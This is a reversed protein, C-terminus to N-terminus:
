PSVRRGDRGHDLLEVERVDPDSPRPVVDDCGADVRLHLAGELQDVIAAEFRVTRHDIDVNHARRGQEQM